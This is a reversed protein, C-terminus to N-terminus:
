KFREKFTKPLIEGPLDAQLVAEVQQPFNYAYGSKEHALVETLVLSGSKNLLFESIRDIFMNKDLQIVYDFLGAIMAKAQKETLKEKQYYRASLKSVADFVSEARITSIVPYSHQGTYGCNLDYVVYDTDAFKLSSEINEIDEDSLGECVFSETDIIKSQQFLTCKSNLGLFAEVYSTKGSDISGSLLISRKNRIMGSLFEFINKDIFGSNILYNFDTKDRSNKKITILFDSVPPMIVTIILNKYGFKLVSKGTNIKSANLLRAALVDANEIMMGADVLSGEKEILVSKNKRICISSIEDDALLIDFKGFGYVSNSLQSCLVEIEISDLNLNEDRVYKDVFAKILELKEKESYDFWVPIASVKESLKQALIDFGSFDDVIEVQERPSKQYEETKFRDKFGM